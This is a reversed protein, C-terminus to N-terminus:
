KGRVMQLLQEGTLKHSQDAGELVGRVLEQKQEHLRQIKEEITGEAILHYVTVAQQQGIRHARDTAQAEVAPNWWPDMHIVYNARTLNLGLGGAKLSILFVPCTGEQFEKVLQARRSLETSGDIYLYPISAKQLAEQVYKLYSTFQSFVLIGGQVKKDEDTTLSEVITEILELLAQIKTGDKDGMIKRGEQILRVDCSCQRLRTIEALTAVSVSRGQEALLMKEARQRMLEYIALEDKSLQVHQYIEEKEPLEKAVKDKTRRLMFPKVLRDLQRQAEKDGQMEIPNIFRRNFDDYSGLLGPNVFQFLNWLEALHNQVPTGTLMIRYNGQLQMAVASTKAGRNKVIHAEDLCVTTWKKKTIEEKVSLLLGYTTVVVDGKKAEKILKKRDASFNLMTANLSPSFRELESMWNPAVSAPAVVLAPGEGAKALLFAITQVTKGLGMDDALLAGAGWKNLRSMWQYGEMQYPRLTAKLTKPVRPKYNSADLIRQRIAKLEEALELQLEGDIEDNSLLAASFPSMQLRGHSRSAITNLAELQDQLSKSLELFEGENLKIYRGHNQGVLDLLQAMTVVRGQDIEVSGEIEFWGNDAKRIFGNWTSQSKRKVRLSAGEPWECAIRDGNNQAYTIIPLLTTTDVEVNGQKLGLIHCEKMFHKLNDKEQPMNREVRTRAGDNKQDVIIDEGEGPTCRKRGGELPRTFLSVVYSDKGQPRMQMILQPSGDTIPLTSGGEILDSNVELKGGITGLFTKLQEEAELPFAELQLLRKYYIRQADPLRLFSISAAARHIIIIKKDAQMLPVNSVVRFRDAERVLTIYPSEETVEVLTYPAYAGVYLRSEQTMEPLLCELTVDGYDYVKRSAEAIRMDTSDMAEINGEVFDYRSVSKGASWGGSKLITQLRPTASSSNISQMFYAIREDKRGAPAEGNDMMLEELVNEWEKKRRLRSLAGTQGYAENARALEEAPLDAYQRMEHLLILWQPSWKSKAPCGMYSEMLKAMSRESLWNSKEMAHLRETIRKDSDTNYMISHLVDAMETEVRGNGKLLAAVLKQAEGTDAMRAILVYFFNLIGYAFYNRRLKRDSEKTNCFTLALKIHGLAKDYDGKYMETLAAIWQHSSNDMLMTDPRTGHAMFDYLDLLCAYSKARAVTSPTAWHDLLRRMYSTDVLAEHWFIGILYHEMCNCFGETPLCRMIPELAENDVYPYLVEENDDFEQTIVSRSPVETFDSIVFKWLIRQLSKPKLFTAKKMIAETLEKENEAIHLMIPLMCGKSIRRNYSYSRWNYDGTTLLNHRDLKQATKLFDYRPQNTVSKVLASIKSAKDDTVSFLTYIIATAKESETFQSFLNSIIM